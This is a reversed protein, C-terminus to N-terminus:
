PKPKANKLIAELGDLSMSSTNKKFDFDYHESILTVLKKYFVLEVAQEGAVKHTESLQKELAKRRVSESELEIVKVIGKQYLLSYKRRWIYIAAESVKYVRSAARFTYVGDEIEKLIFKRAEESFYRRERESVPTELSVSKESLENMM